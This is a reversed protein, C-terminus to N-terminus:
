RVAGVQTVSVIVSPAAPRLPSTTAAHATLSLGTTTGAWMLEVYQNPATVTGVFTIPVNQYSPIGASKRAPLSANTASDSYPVGNFNIWMVAEQIGVDLNAIQSSFTLLYDGPHAFVVKTKTGLGNEVTIGYAGYSSNLTIPQATNIAAIPQTRNDFFGGFYGFSFAEELVDCASQANGNRTSRFWSPANFAM